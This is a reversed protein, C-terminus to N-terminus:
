WGRILVIEQVGFSELSKLKALDEMDCEELSNIKALDAIPEHISVLREEDDLVYWSLYSGREVDYAVGIFANCNLEAVATQLEEKNM